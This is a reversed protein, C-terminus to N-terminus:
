KSQAQFWAQAKLKLRPESGAKFLVGKNNATENNATTQRFLEAFLSARRYTKNAPFYSYKLVRFQLIVSFM